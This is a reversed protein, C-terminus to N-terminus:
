STETVESIAKAVRALVARRAAGRGGVYSRALELATDRDGGALTLCHEVIVDLRQRSATPPSTHLNM